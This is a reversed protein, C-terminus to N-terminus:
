KHDGREINDAETSESKARKVSKVAEIEATTLKIRDLGKAEIEIKNALTAADRQVTALGLVAEKIDAAKRKCWGCATKDAAADLHKAAEMLDTKMEGPDDSLSPRDQEDTHQQKVQTSVVLPKDLGRGISSVSQDVQRISEGIREAKTGISTAVKELVKFPATVAKVLLDEDDTM